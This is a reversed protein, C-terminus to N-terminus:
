AARLYPKASAEVIQAPVTVRIASEEDATVGPREVQDPLVGETDLEAWARRWERATLPRAGPLLNGALSYREFLIGGSVQPGPPGSVLDVADCRLVAALALADDETVPATGNLMQSIRYRPIGSRSALEDGTMKAQALYYGLTQIYNDPASEPAKTRKLKM